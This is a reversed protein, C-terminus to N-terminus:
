KENPFALDIIEEPIGVQYSLCDLDVEIGVRNKLFDKRDDGDLGALYNDMAEEYLYDTEADALAEKDLKGDEGLFEEEDYEFDWADKSKLYAIMDDAEFNHCEDHYYGENLWHTEEADEAAKRYATDLKKYVEPLAEELKLEEIDSSEKERMLTILQGVEEETLEVVSFGSEYVQGSHSFGLCQEYDVNFLPM